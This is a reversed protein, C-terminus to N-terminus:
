RCVYLTDCWLCTGGIDRSLEIMVKSIDKWVSALSGLQSHYGVDRLLTQMQKTGRGWVYRLPRPAPPPPRSDSGHYHSGGVAVRTPKCKMDVYKSWM